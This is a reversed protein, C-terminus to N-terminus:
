DVDERRHAAVSVERVPPIMRIRTSPVPIPEVRLYVAAQFPSSLSQWLAIKEGRTLEDFYVRLPAGELELAGMSHIERVAAELLIMEDGADMSDFPVRRNAYLLFHLALLRDPFQHQSENVRRMGPSGNPRVEEIDYLFIGFRYDTEAGPHTLAVADEASLVGPVMAEQLRALLLKGAREFIPEQNM